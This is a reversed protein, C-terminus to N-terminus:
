PTDRFVEAMAEVLEPHLAAAMSYATTAMSPGPLLVGPDNLVVVGVQTPRAKLTGDSQPHEGNLSPSKTDLEGDASSLRQMAPLGLGRFAALREDDKGALPEAGPLMLFVAEPSAAVLAEADFIPASVRTDAAANAGGAMRLLDDNVTGPGSAMVRPVSFVMLVRPRPRGATLAEIGRLRYRTQEALARGREARDVAAGVAEILALASGADGPYALDTVAFGQREALTTLPGPLGAAGTMALVHTPRLRALRELDLDVYRGVSPVGSRVVQDYEGVAVVADGLGLEYLVQTIAPSLSVLRLEDDAYEAGSGGCGATVGVWCWLALWAVGWWWGAPGALSRSGTSERSGSWGCRGRGRSGIAEVEIDRMM